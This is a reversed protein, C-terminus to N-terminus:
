QLVVPNKIARNNLLNDKKYLNEMYIIISKIIIHNYPSSYHTSNNKPTKIIDANDTDMPSKAHRKTKNLRINKISATKITNM